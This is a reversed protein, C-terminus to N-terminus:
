QDEKLVELNKYIKSLVNVVISNGAQKYLQSNSRDKGNYYTDNLAQKAKYFDEDDFDMLRWCELPTLKRIRLGDLVLNDKLVSTLCNSTGTKNIELRQETEIGKRRGSPNEVNRGRLAGIVKPEIIKTDHGGGSCTNCAPAIGAPDYVRCASELRGKIVLDGAKLLLNNDGHPRQYIFNDDMRGGARTTIAKAIGMGKGPSFRFGNGKDEMDKSHRTFYKVIKDSLYYKEDVEDELYDDLCKTLTESEPFTYPAGELQSVMFVRDRNQAVGHYRANIKQFSNTYGIGELFLCWEDFLPKNKKHLLAAVNEMILTQPLQEEGYLIPSMYKQELLIREVEWLLGSRTNGERSMGAQKGAVSLDQCPFSYTMLYEYKNTDTIGLDYASIKTIDSPEFDTGYIANYSTVCYKDFEVLRHRQFPVAQRDLAKTQAGIGGFLEITRLIKSM